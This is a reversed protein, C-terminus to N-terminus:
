SSRAAHPVQPRGARLLRRRPRGRAEEPQQGARRHHACRAQRSTSCRRSRTTPSRRTSAGSCRIPASSASATTPRARVCASRSPSTPRASAARGSGCSRSAATSSASSPSTSCWRAISAEAAAQLRLGRHPLGRSVRRLAHAPRSPDASARAGRSRHRTRLFRPARAQALRGASISTSTIRLTPSGLRRLNQLLRDREESAM